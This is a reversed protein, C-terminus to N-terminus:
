IPAGERRSRQVCKEYSRCMWEARLHKAHSDQPHMFLRHNDSAFGCCCCRTRM